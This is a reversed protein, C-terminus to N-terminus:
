YYDRPYRRSSGYDRYRRPEHYQDNWDRYRSGHREGCPECFGRGGHRDFQYGYPCRDEPSPGGACGIQKILYSESLPSLSNGIPSAQASLAVLLALPVTAALAIVSKKM